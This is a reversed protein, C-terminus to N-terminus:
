RGDAWTAERPDAGAILQSGERRIAGVSGFENDWAPRPVGEYGYVALEVGTTRYLSEELWLVGPESEHPSFSSPVSRTRFRPADIADQLGMGFVEMNLFVQVLAQAQMDGGPTSYAMWLESGKLVVIAHPTVRPRKGPELATPSDPDLRFQVMRNGLTMGTDRVMPSKPFDSPTIVVANGLRDVVVLQSTDKGIAFDIATTLSAARASRNGAANIPPIYPTTGEIVGPQPLGGFATPGMERRRLAAFEDSLLIETPVNVFAPDGVYADRDAFALELAQTVTHVYAASNHGLSRLDMGDLINLAMLGAIGQTWGGNTHFTYERYSGVIPTEWAGAYGALDSAQFLGGKRDHLDLIAEALPGDYFYDRVANLAEARTAGTELATSEAQAMAEWSNALDPRTFRDLEVLPRWPQGRLYVRSNYPLIVTFGLREVLSFDLNKAMTKTVPFGSRAMAIANEAVAAFSMTGYDALLRIMVDPSAPILQALINLDPITEHGKQTFLEITAAAPATGVGIYSRTSGNAADYIMTPAISPFSAAEGNTVNLMLLAAVAADYANGGGDLIQMAAATAWPSGTVAAYSTAVVATRAHGTPDQFAMPERAGKPLFAYVIALISAFIVIGLLVFGLVRFFRRM